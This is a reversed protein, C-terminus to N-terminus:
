RKPPRVAVLHAVIYTVLRRGLGGAGGAAVGYTWNGIRWQLATDNPSSTIVPIECRYWAAPHGRFRTRSLPHAPLARNAGYGRWCGVLYPQMAAQSVPAAWIGAAGDGPSSESTGVTSFAGSLSLLRASCAATPCDPAAAGTWPAPLRTPCYVLHRTLRAANECTKHITAPVPELYLSGLTWYGHPDPAPSYGSNRAARVTAFCTTHGGQPLAGPYNPPYVLKTTTNALYNFGEPCLAHKGALVPATRDSTLTVAATATAAVVLIALLGLLAGRRTGLQAANTRLRATRRIWPGSRVNTEASPALDAAREFQEGLEQLARFRPTM